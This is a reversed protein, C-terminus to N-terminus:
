IFEVECFRKPDHLLVVESEHEYRVIVRNDKSLTSVIVPTSNNLRKAFFMAMDRDETWAMGHALSPGFAGGRFLRKSIPKKPAPHRANLGRESSKELWSSVRAFDFNATM